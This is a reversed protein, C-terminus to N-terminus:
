VGVAGYGTEHDPLQSKDPIQEPQSASDKVTAEMKGNHDEPWREGNVRLHNMMARVHMVLSSDYENPVGNRQSGTRNRHFHIRLFQYYM